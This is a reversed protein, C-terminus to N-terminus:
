KTPRAHDFSPTAQMLEAEVHLPEVWRLCCAAETDGAAAAARLARILEANTM